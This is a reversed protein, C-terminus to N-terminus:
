QSPLQYLTINGSDRAHKDKEAEAFALWHNQPHWAMTNIAANCKIQSVLEGTEVLAVDICLDESASAIMKSDHTFSVTRIPFQLRGFTRLCALDEVDWLSVLADASGVAFYEGSPSFKVCYCNATHAHLTCTRELSPWSMVEIGGRGTTLFLFNLDKSWAIENVEFGFKLIKITEFKRTDIITLHDLKNGVAIHGGDPSWAININAGSTKLTHTSKASRTDWIRVTKDASATALYEPHTPDWCLQHVSNTHGKLVMHEGGPSAMTWVRATQDVSGSALKRGTCNWAVSHV